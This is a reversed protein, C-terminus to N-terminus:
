SVLFIPLWIQSWSSLITELFVFGLRPTNTELRDYCLFHTSYINKQQKNEQQKGESRGQSTVTTNTQKKLHSYPSTNFRPVIIKERRAWM